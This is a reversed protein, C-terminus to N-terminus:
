NGSGEDSLIRCLHTIGLASYVGFHGIDAGWAGVALCHGKRRGYFGLPRLLVSGQRCYATVPADPPSGGAPARSLLDHIGAQEADRWIIQGGKDM